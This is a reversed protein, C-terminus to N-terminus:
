YTVTLVTSRTGSCTALACTGSQGAPVNATVTYPQALGTGTASTGSLALTYALGLLTGSAPSLALSYPTGRTCDVTFGMTASQATASFSTYNLTITSPSVAGPATNGSAVQGVFCQAVISVTPTFTTTAVVAGATTLQLNATFIEDYIGATKGTQGSAVRLDYTLVTSATLSAGFNLTGSVRAAGTTTWNTTTANKFIRVNLRNTATTTGGHRFVRRAGTTGNNIGVWYTTSNPDALARTCNLTISGSANANAASTYNLNVSTATLSCTIAAHAASAGFLSSLASLAALKLTRRAALTTKQMM